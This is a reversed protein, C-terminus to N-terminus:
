FYIIIHHPNNSTFPQTYLAAAAAAAAAASAAGAAPSPVATGAPNYAAAAAYRPWLSCDM